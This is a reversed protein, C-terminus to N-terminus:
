VNFFEDKYSFNEAELSFTTKANRKNQFTMFMLKIKRGRDQM